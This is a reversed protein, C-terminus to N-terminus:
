WPRLRTGRATRLDPHTPCGDLGTASPAFSVGDCETCLCIRAAFAEADGLWAAAFLALVLESLNRDSTVWPVWGRSDPRRQLLGKAILSLALDDSPRDRLQRLAAVVHLRAMHILSRACAGDEHSALVIPDCGPERVVDWPPAWGSIAIDWTLWSSLSGVSSVKSVGDLFGMGAIMLAQRDSAAVLERPTAPLTTAVARVAAGGSAGTPTCVHAQRLKM